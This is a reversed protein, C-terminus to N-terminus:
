ANVTDQTDKGQYYDFRTKTQLPLLLFSNVAHDSKKKFAPLHDFIAGSQELVSWRAELCTQKLQELELIYFTERLYM